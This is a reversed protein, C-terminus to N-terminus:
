QPWQEELELIATEIVARKDKVKKKEKEIRGPLQAFTKISFDKLDKKLESMVGEARAKDEKADDIEESLDLLREKINM